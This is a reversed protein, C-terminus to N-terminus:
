WGHVLNEQALLPGIIGPIDTQIIKSGRQIHRDLAESGDGGAEIEALVASDTMGLANQAPKIGEGACAEFLETGLVYWPIEVIPPRYPLLSALEEMTEADAMQMLEPYAEFVIQTEERSSTQVWVQGIKGAGLLDQYILDWRDTKADVNAMMGVPLADLAERFTPIPQNSVGEEMSVVEFGRLEGLLMGGVDGSGNTTRDISSDHMLVLVDDATPRVDLEVVDMGFSAALSISYLTNEPGQIGAGRHGVGFLHGCSPDLICAALDLEFASPASSDLLSPGKGGACGCALFAAGFAATRMQFGQM